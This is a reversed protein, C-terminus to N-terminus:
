SILSFCMIVLTPIEAGGQVFFVILIMSIALILHNVLFIKRLEYFRLSLPAIAAGFFGIVGLLKVKEDNSFRM